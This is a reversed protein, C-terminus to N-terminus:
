ELASIFARCEDLSGYWMWHSEPKIKVIPSWYKHWECCVVADCWGDTLLSLMEGSMSYKGDSPNIVLFFRNGPIPEPKPEPEPQPEPDPEPKPDPDPKPKDDPKPLPIADLLERLKALLEGIERIQNMLNNIWNEM